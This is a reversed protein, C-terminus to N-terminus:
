KSQMLYYIFIILVFIFLYFLINNSEEINNFTEVVNYNSEIDEVQKVINDDINNDYNIILKKITILDSKNVNINNEIKKYIYLMKSLNTIKELSLIQSDKIYDKLKYESNMKSKILSDLAEQLSNYNISYLILIDKKLDPINILQSDNNITNKSLSSDIINSNMNTAFSNNLSTNDTSSNNLSTNDTLSNNLSTNDTSSNNLTTNDTSSNNLTTNDTSSNNLTTNDTSSNNLTTNDTSSITNNECICQMEDNLIGMKSDDIVNQNNIDTNNNIGNNNITNFNGNNIKAGFFKNNNIGTDFDRNNNTKADFFKNNNIKKNNKLELNVIILNELEDIFNKILRSYQILLSSYNALLLSDNQNNDLMKKFFFLNQENSILLMPSYKKVYDSNLTLLKSNLNNYRLYNKTYDKENIQM